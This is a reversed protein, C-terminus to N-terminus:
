RDDRWYSLDMGLLGELKRIDPEFESLLTARTEPRLRHRVPEALNMRLIRERVGELGGLYSSLFRKAPRMFPRNILRHAHSHLSVVIQSRVRQTTNVRSGVISPKFSPDVGLFAFVRSCEAEPDAFFNEYTQVYIRERPFLRFFPTLQRHYFGLRLYEPYRELEREFTPERHDRQRIIQYTSFLVEAPNRLLMLIRANPFHRHIREAAAPDVYYTPTMDGLLAGAPAGKFRRRYYEIGLPYTFDRHNLFPENFFNLEKAAPIFIQPHQGLATSLWTTGSRPAAVLVFDLFEDAQPASAGGVPDDKIPAGRRERRLESV